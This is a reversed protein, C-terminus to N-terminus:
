EVATKDRLRYEFATLAEWTNVAADVYDRAAQATLQADTHAVQNRLASLRWISRVTGSPLGAEELVRLPGYGQNSAIVAPEIGEPRVSLAMHVLRRRIYDWGSTVAVAPNAALLQELVEQFPLAVTGESSPVERGASAQQEAVAVETEARLDAAADAFEAEAVGGRLIRLRGFLAAIQAKFTLTVFVFAAPWILAKLYELVM